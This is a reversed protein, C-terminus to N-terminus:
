LAPGNTAPHMPGAEARRDIRGLRPSQTPGPNRGRKAIPRGDIEKLDGTFDIPLAPSMTGLYAEPSGRWHQALSTGHEGYEARGAKM